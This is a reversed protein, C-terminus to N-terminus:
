VSPREQIALCGAGCPHLREGTQATQPRITAPRSAQGSATPFIWNCRCAIRAPWTALVRRKTANGSASRLGSTPARLPITGPGCCLEGQFEHEVYAPVRQGDWDDEAALVLNPSRRFIEYWIVGSQPEGELLATLLMAPSHSQRHLVSPPRRSLDAPILNSLFRRLRWTSSSLKTSRFAAPRRELPLAEARAHHLRQDVALVREGLTPHAVLYAPLTQAELGVALRPPM